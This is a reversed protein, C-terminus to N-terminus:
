DYKGIRERGLDDYVSTKGHAGLTKDLCALYGKANGTSVSLRGHPVLPGKTDTASARLRLCRLAVSLPEHGM